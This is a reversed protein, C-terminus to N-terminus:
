GADDYDFKERRERFDFILSFVSFLATLLGQFIRTHCHHTLYIHTCAMMTVCRKQSCLTDYSSNIRFMYFFIGTFINYQM